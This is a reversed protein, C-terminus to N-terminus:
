FNQRYHLTMYNVLFSYSKATLKKYIKKFDDFGIDSSYNNAFQQLERKQNLIKMIFCHASNLRVNPPIKFYSQMIFTLSINLKRERIFMETVIPNDNFM